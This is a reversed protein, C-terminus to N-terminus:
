GMYSPGSIATVKVTSLESVAGGWDGSGSGIKGVTASDIKGMFHTTEEENLELLRALKYVAHGGGSKIAFFSRFTIQIEAIHGSAKDRVNLLMDRYGGTASADHNRHLRDKIRIITWKSHGHIFTLVEIASAVNDCIFTMRALDTLCDYCGGYKEETKVTARTIGKLSPIKAKIQQVSGVPGGNISAEAEAGLEILRTRTATADIYLAMLFEPRKPNQLSGKVQGPDLARAVATAVTSTTITQRNKGALAYVQQRPFSQVVPQSTDYGEEYTATRRRVQQWISVTVRGDADMTQVKAQQMKDKHPVIALQGKQVDGTNAISGALEELKDYETGEKATIEELAQEYKRVDNVLARGVQEAVDQRVQELNTKATQFSRQIKGQASRLKEVRVAARSKLYLDTNEEASKVAKAIAAAHLDLSLALPGLSQPQM